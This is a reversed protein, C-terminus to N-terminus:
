HTIGSFGRMASRKKISADEARAISIDPRLRQIRGTPIFGRRAHSNRTKRLIFRDKLIEVVSQEEVSLRNIHVMSDIDRAVVEAKPLVFLRVDVCGKDACKKM